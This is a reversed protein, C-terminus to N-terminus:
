SPQRWLVGPWGGEQTFQYAPELRLNGGSGGGLYLYGPGLINYIGRLLEPINCSFSDPFLLITGSEEEARLVEGARERKRYPNLSINRELHTFAKIGSGFFCCLGIGRSYFRTAQIIGQTWTGIFPSFPFIKAATSVVEGPDYGETILVMMFAPERDLSIGDRIERLAEGPDERSSFGTRIAKEM